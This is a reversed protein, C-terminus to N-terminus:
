KLPKALAKSVDRIICTVILGDATKTASLAAAMPFESGDRRRATAALHEGMQRRFPNEGYEQSHGEHVSRYCEPVLDEVNLRLLEGTSYGFLKSAQANAFQVRGDGDLVLIADPATELLGRFIELSTRLMDEVRAHEAIRELLVQNEFRLKELMGEAKNELFKAVLEARNSPGLKIRVRGWYTGVTALSIGLQNAIAQDTSGQAALQLIQGERGSLGFGEEEESPTLLHKGM